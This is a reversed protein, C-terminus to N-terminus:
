SRNRNRSRSAAARLEDMLAIVGQFGFLGEDHYIDVARSSNLLFSADSGVAVCADSDVPWDGGVVAAAGGRRVITVEPHDEALRRASASDDAKAHLAFVLRVDFGYALLDLALSFPRMTASSDIAVSFGELAKRARDVADRTEDIHSSVDVEGGALSALEGYRRAIEGIDYCAHWRMGPVNLREEFDLLAADGIHSLSVALRSQALREYAAYDECAFLQRIPGLGLQGVVRHFECDSPIAEFHGLLTIGDDRKESAELPEYLRSHIGQLKAKSVDGAIPNIRSLTFRVDPHQRSLEEVLARADTGLFDDICNVQLSVVRPRHPLLALLRDCTEYIREEYAGTVIDTQSFRLFSVDDLIGNRLARLGHRRACSNPCLYLTHSEPISLTRKSRKSTSIQYMLEAMRERM